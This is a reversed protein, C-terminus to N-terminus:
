NAYVISIISNPYVEFLEEKTQIIVSGYETKHINCDFTDFSQSDGRSEIRYVLGGLTTVHKIKRSGDSNFLHRINTPTHKDTSLPSRTWSFNM